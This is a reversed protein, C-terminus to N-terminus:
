CEPTNSGLPPARGDAGTSPAAYRCAASHRTRDLRFWGGAHSRLRQAACSVYGPEGSLSLAALEPSGSCRRVTAGARAGLAVRGQVSAPPSDVLLPERESGADEGASGNEESVGGRRALLRQVYREITAPVRDM